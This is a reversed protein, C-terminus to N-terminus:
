PNMRIRRMRALLVDGDALLRAAAGHWGHQHLTAVTDADLWVVLAGALEASLAASNVRGQDLEECAQAVAILALLGPTAARYAASDGSLLLPALLLHCNKGAWMAPSARADDEEVAEVTQCMLLGTAGRLTPYQGALTYVADWYRPQIRLLNRRDLPLNEDLADDLVRAYLHVRACQEITSLAVDGGLLPAVLLALFPPAHEAVDLLRRQTRRGTPTDPMQGLADIDRYLTATLHGILQDPSM